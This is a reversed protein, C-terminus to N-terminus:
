EATDVDADVDWWADFRAACGVEVGVGAQILGGIFFGGAATGRDLPAFSRGSCGDDNDREDAAVILLRVDVWLFLVKWFVGGGLWVFCHCEIRESSDEETPRVM